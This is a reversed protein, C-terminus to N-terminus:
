RCVYMCVYMCVYTCLGICRFIYGQETYYSVVCETICTWVDFLLSINAVLVNSVLTKEPAKSPVDGWGM